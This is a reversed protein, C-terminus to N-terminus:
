EKGSVRRLVGKPFMMSLGAPSIELADAIEKQQIGSRVLALIRLRNGRRLEEYVDSLTVEKKSM